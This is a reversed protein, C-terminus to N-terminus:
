CKGVFSSKILLAQCLEITARETSKSINQKRQCIGFTSHLQRSIGFTIRELIDGSDAREVFGASSM